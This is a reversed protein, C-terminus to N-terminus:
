ITPGTSSLPLRRARRWSYAVRALIGSFMYMLAMLILVYQSFFVLAYVVLGILVM